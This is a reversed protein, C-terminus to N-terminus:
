QKKPASDDKGAAPTPEPATAGSPNAGPATGAPKASDTAGAAPAQDSAGSPNKDKDKDTGSVPQRGTDSPPTAPARNGMGPDTAGAPQQAANKSKPETRCGPALALLAGALLTAFLGTKKM